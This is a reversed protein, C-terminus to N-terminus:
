WCSLWFDIVEGMMEGRQLYTSKDVMKGTSDMGNVYLYFAEEEEYGALRLSGLGVSLGTERRVHETAPCSTLVHRESIEVQVPLCLPCHRSRTRGPRPAKNGLGANAVKVRAIISAARSESVYRAMRWYRQPRLAPLNLCSVADNTVAMFHGLLHLQVAKKTPMFQEMGVEMRIRLIYALYRSEWNGTLHEQLAQHVWRSPPLNMVRTYFALQRSFLQHRVKKWGLETQAVINPSTRPLGLAFKAVSSQMRELTEINTEAFPITECGFLIAPMAVQQWCASTVEALDPGLKGIKMTSGKYKAAKQVASKQKEVATKFMTNYTQIGLYKYSIVQKLSVVAEGEENLVRWDDTVPAVVQSKKESITLRLKQCGALLTSLLNKLGAATRSVLIIDDAFFLCSVTLVGVRFGEKALSLSNAVESVYLAFLMPSLSCGQRLGRTLYIRGTSLGNVTTSVCDQEYLSRLAGLFRPGLGLQELRSWLLCRDM